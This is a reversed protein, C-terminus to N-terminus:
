QRHINQIRHRLDLNVDIRTPCFSTFAPGKVPPSPANAISLPLISLDFTHHPLTRQLLELM